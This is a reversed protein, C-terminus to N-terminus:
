VIWDKLSGESLLVLCFFLLCMSVWIKKLTACLNACSKHPSPISLPCVLDNCKPCPLVMQFSVASFGWLQGGVPWGVCM